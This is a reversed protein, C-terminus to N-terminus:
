ELIPFGVRDLLGVDVGYKELVKEPSVLTLASTSLFYHIGNGSAQSTPYYFGLAKVGPLGTLDLFNRLEM